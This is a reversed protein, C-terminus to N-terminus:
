INATLEVALRKQTEDSIKSSHGFIKITNLM